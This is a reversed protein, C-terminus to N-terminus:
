SNRKKLYIMVGAVVLIVVAAIHLWDMTKNNKLNNWLVVFNILARLVKIVVAFVTLAHFLMTLRRAVYWNALVRFIATVGVLM